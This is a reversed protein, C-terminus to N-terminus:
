EGGPSSRMRQLVKVKGMGVGGASFWRTFIESANVEM